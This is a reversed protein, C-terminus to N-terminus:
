SSSSSGSSGAEPVAARLLMEIKWRAAPLAKSQTAEPLLLVNGSHLVVTNNILRVEQSAEGLSRLLLNLFQHLGIHGHMGRWPREHPQLRDRSQNVFELVAFWRLERFSSRRPCGSSGYTREFAADVTDVLWRSADAEDMGGDSDDDDEEEEEDTADELGSADEERPPLTNGHADVGLAEARCLPCERRLRSQLLKQACDKHVRHTCRYLCASEIPRCSDLCVPCVDEDEDKHTGQPTHVAGAPVTWAFAAEASAPVVAESSPQVPRRSRSRQRPM